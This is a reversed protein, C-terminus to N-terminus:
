AIQFLRFQLIWLRCYHQRPEKAVQSELQNLVHCHGASPRLTLQM